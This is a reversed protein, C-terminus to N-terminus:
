SAQASCPTGVSVTQLAPLWYCFVVLDNRVTPSTGAWADIASNWPTPGVGLNRRRVGAAHHQSLGGGGWIAKRVSREPGAASAEAM